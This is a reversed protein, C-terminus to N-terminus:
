PNFDGVNTKALGSDSGEPASSSLNMASRLWIEGYIEEHGHPFGETDAVERPLDFRVERDVVTMGQAGPRNDPRGPLQSPTFNNGGPNSATIFDDGFTTGGDEERLRAFERFSVGMEGPDFSASYKISFHYDPDDEHAGGEIRPSPNSRLIEVM